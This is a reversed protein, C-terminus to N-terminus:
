NDIEGGVGGGNEGSGGLMGPLQNVLNLLQLEYWERGNRAVYLQKLKQM